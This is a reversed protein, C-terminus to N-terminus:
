VGHGLYSPTKWQNEIAGSGVSRQVGFDTRTEMNQGSGMGLWVRIWLLM